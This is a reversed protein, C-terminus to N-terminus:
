AALGDFIDMSSWAVRWGSPGNVLRMTRGSDEIAGFAPSHITLDYHVAATIGQVETEHLTIDLGDLQIADDVNQYTTQFVPLTYMTQYDRSEWANLFQEVVDAPEQAVQPLISASSAASSGDAGPLAGCATLLLAFVLVVYFKVCLLLSVSFCLIRM